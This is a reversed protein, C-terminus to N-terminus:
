INQAAYPYVETSLFSLTFSKFARNYDRKKCVFPYYSDWKLQWIVKMELCVFHWQLFGHVKLYARKISVNLFQIEYYLVCQSLCVNKYVATASINEQCGGSWLLWSETTGVPAASFLFLAGFVNVVAASKNIWPCVIWPMTQESFRFITAFYLLHRIEM